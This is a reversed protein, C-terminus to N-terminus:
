NSENDRYGSTMKELVSLHPLLSTREGIPKSQIKKFVDSSVYPNTGLVTQQILDKGQSANFDKIGSNLYARQGQQHLFGGGAASGFMGATAARNVWPSTVKSAQPAGKLVGKLLRSAWSAGRVLPISTAAGFGLNGLAQYNKAKAADLQGISRLYKSDQTNTIADQFPETLFNFVAKGGAIMKDLNPETALKHTLADAFSSIYEKAYKNM